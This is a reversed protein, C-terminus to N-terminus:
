LPQLASEIVSRRQPDQPLEIFLSRLQERPLRAGAQVLREAVDWRGHTFAVALSGRGNADVAGVDAGAHILLNAVEVPCHRATGMLPTSGDAGRRELDIGRDILLQIAALRTAMPTRVSCGFAAAYGLLNPVDRFPMNINMGADLLARLLEVDAAMAAATLSSESVGVSRESLLALAQQEAEPNQPALELPGGQPREMRDALWADLIEVRSALLGAASSTDATALAMAERVLKTEAEIDRLAMLAGVRAWSANRPESSLSVLVPSAQVRLWARTQAALGTSGRVAEVLAEIAREQDREPRGPAAAARLAELVEAAASEPAVVNACAGEVPVFFLATSL